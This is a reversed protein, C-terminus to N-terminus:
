HKIEKGPLIKPVLYILVSIATYVCCCSYWSLQFAKCLDIKWGTSPKEQCNGITQRSDALLVKHRSGFL